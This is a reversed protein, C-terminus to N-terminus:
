AEARDGIEVGGGCYRYHTHSLIENERKVMYPLIPLSLAPKTPQMHNSVETSPWSAVYTRPPRM